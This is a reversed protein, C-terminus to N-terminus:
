GGLCDGGKGRSLPLIYAWEDGWVYIGVYMGSQISEEM